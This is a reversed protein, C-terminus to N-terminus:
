FSQKPQADIDVTGFNGGVSAPAAGPGPKMGPPPLETRGAPVGAPAAARGRQPSFLRVVDAHGRERAIEEASRGERNKVRPDQTRSILLAVLEANGSDAAGHLPLNGRLDAQGPDAGRQLLLRVVNANGSLAAWHLATEGDDNRAKSDAKADLLVAVYDTEPNLAAYHLPTEGSRSRARLSAGAKLLARTLELMGKEVARHLPTEGDANRADLAPKERTLVGEAVLEKGEDIAVFLRQAANGAAPTQGWAQTFGLALVVCLVRIM